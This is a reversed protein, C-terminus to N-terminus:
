WWKECLVNESRIGQFGKVMDVFEDTMAQPGCIYVVTEDRRVLDPGLAQEVDDRSMRRPRITPKTFQLSAKPPATSAAGPTAFIEATLDVQVKQKTNTIKSVKSMFLVDSCDLEDTKTGYLLGISQLPPVQREDTLYTLLSMLPNIGVGGGIM